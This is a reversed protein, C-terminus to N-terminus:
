ISETLTGNEVLYVVASPGAGDFFSAESGTMWAQLDLEELLRFLGNRRTKDLHATVEDLLLVPAAGFTEKVARAQALVLGILLAKQEGTSCLSAPMDKPGHTVSLDSRHPGILTRGAAKDVGRSQKLSMRYNEEAQLAPREVAERESTGLIELQCWPFCSANRHDSLYKGFLLTADVRAHAVAVAYEAMQNELSLLWTSDPRPEQLLLNRERMTKEFGIVRMAHEPDLLAVMRDLYRRRDGAPGSFLGDMSPTLWLLRLHHGLAGASRQILGDIMVRRTPSVEGVAPTTYATGLQVPDHLSQVNASVAWQPGGNAGVIVDFPAGRLGRGPALMSIAELLNTKGAGNAGVLIVLPLQPEM